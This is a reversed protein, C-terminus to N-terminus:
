LSKQLRHFCCLYRTDLGQTKRGHVLNHLSFIHDQCNRGVRFGNQEEVLLKNAEVFESLRANLICCLVKTAVSQLSIGRYDSPDLPNGGPKPIPNIISQLWPFPVRGSGLCKNFLQCLFSTCSPNKLFSVM